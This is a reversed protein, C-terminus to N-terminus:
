CLIDLCLGKGQRLREEELRIEKMKMNDPEKSFRNATEAKQRVLSAAYPDRITRIIIGYAELIM